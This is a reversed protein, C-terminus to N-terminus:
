GGTGGFVTPPNCLNQLFGIHQAALAFVGKTQELVEIMGYENLSEAIRVLLRRVIGNNFNARNGRAYDRPSVLGFRERSIDRPNRGSFDIM